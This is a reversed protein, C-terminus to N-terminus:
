LRGKMPLIMNISFGMDSEIDFYGKVNRVRQKMGQIGMSERIESCGRGNDKITIRVVEGLVRISIDIRDCGSYKLSNTVAEYTNDLIIEWINEPIERDDLSLELNTKINYQEECENCVSQLALIATKKKDPRENRIIVRIEDMSGRLNDIVEQLLKGSEEPKKELLLKVAELKYLSGNISHGLKDHLAQSIRTKEELMENEHQLRSSVMDSKLQSELELNERESKRYWGIIKNHQYYILVTFTLVLLCVGMDAGVYYAPMLLLYSGPYFLVSYLGVIDLYVIELYFIGNVPFLAVALVALLGEAILWIIHRKKDGDIEVLVSSLLFFAGILVMGGVGTVSYDKNISGVIILSFIGMFKVLSFYNNRLKAEM